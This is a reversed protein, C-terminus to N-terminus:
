SKLSVWEKAAEVFETLNLDLIGLDKEKSEEEGCPYLTSIQRISNILSLWLIAHESSLELAAATFNEYTPLAEHASEVVVKIQLSNLKRNKAIDLYTELKPVFESLPKCFRVHKSWHFVNGEFSELTFSLVKGINEKISKKRKREPLYSVICYFFASVIFGVALDFVLANGTSFGNLFNVIPESKIFPVLPENSGIFAMLFALIIAFSWLLINKM